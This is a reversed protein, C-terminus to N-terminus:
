EHRLAEIPDMFAARRAPYIGFVVGVLLSISVALVPSWIQVITPVGGLASATAAGTFGLLIGLLGGTGSLAITEILFQTTIDSRKAGLARRIGIERTRETVTALMINMIGIGGVLLSISAISTLVITFIRQTREAKELLDLPVTLRVDRDRGNQMLISRILMATSQVQDTSPASVTLQSIEVKEPLQAGGPDFSINEGFRQQDTTFPIYVEEGYRRSDDRAGNEGGRVKLVGVVQYYHDPGIRISEGVPEDLPFLYEAAGAGLVAVPIGRECDLTTLFRGAAVELDHLDSYAPFVGRVEGKLQRNRFLIQRRHNRSPSVVSNDPLTATIRRLDRITLGYRIAGTSGTDSLQDSPRVSQLIVNTAGLQNIAAIAESRAGEGVALMVIVSAVGFVVGLITLLSRLKHLTLTQLGLWLSHYIRQFM